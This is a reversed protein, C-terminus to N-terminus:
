CGEFGYSPKQQDFRGVGPTGPPDVKCAVRLPEVSVFRANSLRGYLNFPIKLERAHRTQFGM